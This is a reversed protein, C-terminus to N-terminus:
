PWLRVPLIMAKLGSGDATAIMPATGQALNLRVEDDPFAKLMECLFKPNFGIVLSGGDVPESLFVEEEYTSTASMYSFKVADGNFDMCIPKKEDQALSSIRGAIQLVEARDIGTWVPLEQFIKTYDLYEGEALRSQFVLDETKFKVTKEDALIRVDGKLGLTILKKAAAIPLMLKLQGDYPVKNWAAKGNSMGCANLFGDKAELYVVEMIVRGTAGAEDTAFLVSSVINKLVEASITASTKGEDKSDIDFSYAEVDMSSFMMRSKGSTVSLALNDDVKIETDGETMNVLINYAKPPLLFSESIGKMGELIVMVTQETNSAILYGDKVLLSYLAEMTTKGPVFGKVEKIKKALEASQIKM